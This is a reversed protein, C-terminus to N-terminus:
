AAYNPAFKLKSGGPTFPEGVRHTYAKLELSLDMKPLNRVSSSDKDVQAIPMDLFSCVHATKKFSTLTKEIIADVRDTTKLMPDLKNTMEALM